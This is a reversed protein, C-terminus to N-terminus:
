KMARGTNMDLHKWLYWSAVSRYPRWVDSVQELLGNESNGYLLRVARRLGADGVSLVDARKLGFILFVEATWRGVGPIETLTAIVMEDPEENLKDFDLRGDTVRNALDVIYKSKATSLGASRLAETAVSLFGHPSFPIPTILSLRKKISDAAKASLQQSIIASALSHFPQTILSAYSSEPEMCEATKDGRSKRSLVLETGSRDLLNKTM